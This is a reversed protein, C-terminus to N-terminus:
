IIGIPMPKIDGGEDEFTDQLTDFITGDFQGITIAMRVVLLTAMVLDDTNGDKAAYSAGRAVFTKTERILNPSCMIMKDNEVWSKFKAFTKFTFRSM